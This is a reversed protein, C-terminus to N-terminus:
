RGNWNLRLTLKWLGPFTMVKHKFDQICDHPQAIDSQLREQVIRGFSRGRTIIAASDAECQELKLTQAHSHASVNGVYQEMHHM